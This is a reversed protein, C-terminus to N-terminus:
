FFFFFCLLLFSYTKMFYQLNFSLFVLPFYISWRILSETDSPLSWTKGHRRVMQAFCFFCFFNGHFQCSRFRSVSGDSKANSYGRPTLSLCRQRSVAVRLMSRGWWDRTAKKKTPTSYKRWTSSGTCGRWRPSRPRTMWVMITRCISLFFYLSSLLKLFDM